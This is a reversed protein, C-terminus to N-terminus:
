TCIEGGKVIKHYSFIGGGKIRNHYSFIVGGKVRKRCSCKEEKLENISHFYDNGKLGM